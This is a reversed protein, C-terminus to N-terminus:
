PIDVNALNKIACADVWLSFGTLNRGSTDCLKDQDDTFDERLRNFCATRREFVVTLGISFQSIKLMREADVILFSVRAFCLSARVDNM